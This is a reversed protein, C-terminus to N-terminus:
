DHGTSICTAFIAGRRARLMLAKVFRQAFALTACKALFSAAVPAAEETESNTAAAAKAMSTTTTAIAIPIAAVAAKM